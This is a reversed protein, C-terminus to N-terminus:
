IFLLVGKNGLDYEKNFNKVIKVELIFFKAYSVIELSKSYLM